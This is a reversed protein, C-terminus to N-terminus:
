VGFLRPHPPAPEVRKRKRAEDRGRGRRVPLHGGDAQRRAPRRELGARRVQLANPLSKPDSIAVRRSGAGWCPRASSSASGASPPRWCCAATPTFTRPSAKKTDRRPQRGQRSWCRRRRQAFATRGARFRDLTQKNEFLLLQRFTQGGVQVGITLRAVAAYGVLKDDRFVEGKGFAGGIVAGASGVSPFVAYAYARRLAEELGPDTEKMRAIASQVEGHLESLVGMEKEALSFAKSVLGALTKPM